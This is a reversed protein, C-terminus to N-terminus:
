LEDDMEVFSLGFGHKGKHVVVADEYPITQNVRPEEVLKLHLLEGMYPQEADETAIYMGGQSMDRAKFIRSEHNSLTVNVKFNVPRRPFRRMDKM